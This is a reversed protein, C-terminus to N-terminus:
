EYGDKSYAGRRVERLMFKLVGLLSPTLKIPYITAPCVHRAMASAIRRGQKKGRESARESGRENTQRAATANIYAKIDGMNLAIGVM